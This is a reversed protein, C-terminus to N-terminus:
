RESTIEHLVREFIYPGKGNEIVKEPHFQLGLIPLHTHRILEDGHDSHALSEFDEPLNKIRWHHNEYVTFSPINGLIKSFNPSAEITVPGKQQNQMEEITGGFAKVILECGFCIGILPKKDKQILRIEDRLTDENGEIEFRSGGSLIVLDFQSASINGLANWPRITVTGPVIQKLSELLNTGNDILLTKM